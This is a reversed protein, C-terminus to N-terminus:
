TQSGAPMSRGSAKNKPRTTPPRRARQEADSSETHLIIVRTHLQEALVEISLPIGTRGVEKGTILRPFCHRPQNIILGDPSTTRLVELVQRTFPVTNGKDKSMVLLNADRINQIRASISSWDADLLNGTRLSSARISMALLRHGLHSAERAHTILLTKCDPIARAGELLCLLLWDHASAPTATIISVRAFDQSTFSSASGFDDALTGNADSNQLDNFANILLQRLPIPITMVTHERRWITPTTRRYEGRSHCSTDYLPRRCTAPKRLVYLHDFVIGLVAAPDGRCRQPSSQKRATRSGM